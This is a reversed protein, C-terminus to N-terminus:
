DKKPANYGDSFGEVLESASKLIFLWPIRGGSVEFIEINTLEHM